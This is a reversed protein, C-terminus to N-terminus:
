QNVKDALFKHYYSKYFSWCEKPIPPINIKNLLGFDIEISRIEENISYIPFIMVWEYYYVRDKNNVLVRAFPRKRGNVMIKNKESAWISNMPAATCFFYANVFRKYEESGVADTYIFEESKDNYIKKM